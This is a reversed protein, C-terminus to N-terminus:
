MFSGTILNNIRILSDVILFLDGEKNILEQNKFEHANVMRIANIDILEDEEELIKFLANLKQTDEESKETM